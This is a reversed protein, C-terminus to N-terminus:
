LEDTDDRQPLERWLETVVGDIDRWGDATPRFRGRELERLQGGVVMEVLRRHVGGLAASHAREGKTCAEIYDNANFVSFGVDTPLQLMLMEKVHTTPGITEREEILDNRTRRDTHARQGAPDNQDTGRSQESRNLPEARRRERRIRCEDVFMTAAGPGLGLYEGGARVHQMHPSEAGPRGFSVRSLRRRGFREVCTTVRRLSEAGAGDVSFHDIHLEGVLVEVTARPSSGLCGGSCEVSVDVERAALRRIMSRWGSVAAPELPGGKNDVRLVCREFGAPDVAALGCRSLEEGDLELTLKTTADILGAGRLSDLSTELQPLTKSLTGLEAYVREAPRCREAWAHASASPDYVSAGAGAQGNGDDVQRDSLRIFIHFPRDAPRRLHNAARPGLASAPEHQRM